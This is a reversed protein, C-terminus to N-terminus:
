GVTSKQACTLNLDGNGTEGERGEKRKREKQNEREGAFSPSVCKNSGGM